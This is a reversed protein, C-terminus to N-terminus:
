YYNSLTYLWYPETYIEEIKEIIHRPNPRKKDFRIKEIKWHNTEKNFLCQVVKNEYELAYTNKDISYENNEQDFGCGEKIQLDITMQTIPKIKYKRNDRNKVILGDNPLFNYQNYIYQWRLLGDLGNHAYYFPKIVWLDTITDTSLLMTLHSQTLKNQQKGLLKYFGYMEFENLERNEKRKWVEYICYITRSKYFIKEAVFYYYQLIEKTQQLLKPHKNELESAHLVVRTGDLKSSVWTSDNLLDIAEKKTTHQPHYTDEEIEDHFMFDTFFYNSKTLHKNMLEIHMIQKSVSNKKMRYRFICKKLVKAVLNWKYYYSNEQIGWNYYKVEENWFRTNVYPMGQRICWDMIDENKLYGADYIVYFLKSTLDNDKMLELLFITVKKFKNFVEENIQNNLNNHITTFLKMIKRFISIIYSSNSKYLNLTDVMKEKINPTFEFTEITEGHNSFKNIDNIFIYVIVDKFYFLEQKLFDKSLITEAYEFVYQKYKKCFNIKDCEFNNIWLYSDFDTEPMFETVNLKGTEVLICKKLLWVFLYELPKFETRFSLSHFYLSRLFVLWIDKFYFNKLIIMLKKKCEKLLITKKWGICNSYFVCLNYLTNSITHVTIEDKNYHKCIFELVRKDKNLISLTFANNENLGKATNYSDYNHDVFYKIYKSDIFFWSNMVLEYNGYRVIDIFFREFNENHTNSRLDDYIKRVLQLNNPYPIIWALKSDYYTYLSYKDVCYKDFFQYIKEIKRTNEKNKRFINKYEEQLETIIQIMWEWYQANKFITINYDEILYELKKISLIYDADCNTYLFIHLLYYGYYMDHRKKEFIYKTIYKEIWIFLFYLHKYMDIFYSTYAIENNSSNVNVYNSDMYEIFKKSVRPVSLINKMFYDYKTTMLSCMSFSFEILNNFLMDCLQNNKDVIYFLDIFMNCHNNQVISYLINTCKTPWINASYNFCYNFMLNVIPYYTYTTPHFSYNMAQPYTQIIEYLFSYNDTEGIKHFNCCYEVFILLHIIEKQKETNIIGSKFPIIKKRFNNRWELYPKMHILIFEDSTKYDLNPIERTFITYLDLIEAQISSQIRSM